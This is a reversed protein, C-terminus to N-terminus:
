GLDGLKRLEEYFSDRAAQKIDDLSRLGLDGRAALAKAVAALGADIVGIQVVIFEFRIDALSREGEVLENTWFELGAKDPERLLVRRYLDTVTREAALPSYSPLPMSPEPENITRVIEILNDGPCASAYKTGAARWRHTDLPSGFVQAVRRLTAVQAPTPDENEFNGLFCLRFVPGDSKRGEFIRGDPMVVGHYFIDFWSLTNQHFRQISQVLQAPSAYNVLDGLDPNATHHVEVSTFFAPPRWGAPEAAGWDDRSVDFEIM